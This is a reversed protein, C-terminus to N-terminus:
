KGIKEASDTTKKVLSSVKSFVKEGGPVLHAYKGAVGMLMSFIAAYIGIKLFSRIM